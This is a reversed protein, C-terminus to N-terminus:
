IAGSLTSEAVINRIEADGNAILTAIPQAAFVRRAMEGQLELGSVYDLALTTSASIPARVVGERTSGVTMLHEVWHVLQSVGNVTM